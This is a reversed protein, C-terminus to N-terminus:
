GVHGASTGGDAGSGGGIGPVVFQDDGGLGDSWGVVLFVELWYPRPNRKRIQGAKWIKILPGM